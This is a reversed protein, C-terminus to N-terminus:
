STVIKKLNLFFRLGILLNLGAHQRLSKETSYILDTLKRKKDININKYIKLYVSKEKFLYRPIKKEFDVISDNFIILFINNKIAYFFSSLDKQDLINNRYTNIIFDNDKYINFFMKDGESGGRILVSKLCKVTQFSKNMLFVKDLDSELFM